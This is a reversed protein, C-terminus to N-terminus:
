VPLRSRELALRLSSMEAKLVETEDHILEREAECEEARAKAHEEQMANVIIGIFLNLVIFTIIIIFQIIDRGQGPAYGSAGACTGGVM